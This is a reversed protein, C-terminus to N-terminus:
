DEPNIMFHEPITIVCYEEFSQSGSFNTENTMDAWPAFAVMKRPAFASATVFKQTSTTERAIWLGSDEHQELPFQQIMYVKRFQPGVVFM